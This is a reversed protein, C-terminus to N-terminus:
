INREIPVNIRKIPITKIKEPNKPITIKIAEVKV